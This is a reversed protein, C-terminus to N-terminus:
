YIDVFKQYQLQSEVYDVGVSGYRHKATILEAKFKDETSQNYVIDRYVFLIIDSNEEIGGSEKLDSLIPRKDPRAELTRNLQSLVISCLNLEKAINKFAMTAAGIAERRISREPMQMLGVHDIVVKGVQMRANEKRITAIVKDPTMQRDIIKINLNMLLQCAEVTDEFDRDNMTSPKTIKGFSVDKRAAIFRKIVETAPMEFSFILTQKSNDLMQSRMALVLALVSKGMGPRGAITILKGAVLGGWREDLDKLGTSAGILGEIIMQAELERVTDTIQGKFTLQEDDPELSLADNNVNFVLSKLEELDTDREALHSLERIKNFLYGKQWEEITMNIYYDINEYNSMDALEYIHEAEEQSLRLNDKVIIPDISKGAISSVTIFDFIRSYLEHTFHFPKMIDCIRLAQDKDVLCLGIIEQETELSM